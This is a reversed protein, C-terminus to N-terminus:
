LYQKLTNNTYMYMFINLINKIKLVTSTVKRFCRKLLMRQQDNEKLEFSLWTPLKLILFSKSSSVFNLSTNTGISIQSKSFELGYIHTAHLVSKSFLYVRNSKANSTYKTKIILALHLCHAYTEPSGHRRRAKMSRLQSYRLRTELSKTVFAYMCVDIM